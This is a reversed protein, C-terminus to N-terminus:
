SRENGSRQAITTEITQYISRFTSDFNAPTVRGTEIFKVAIEKAIKLILEESLQKPQM